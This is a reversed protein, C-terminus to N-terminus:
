LSWRESEQVLYACTAFVDGLAGLTVDRGALVEQVTGPMDLCPVCGAFVLACYVVLSVPLCLTPCRGYLLGACSGRHRSQMTFLAIRGKGQSFLPLPSAVLFSATEVGFSRLLQRRCQHRADHGETGFGAEISVLTGAARCYRSCETLGTGHLTALLKRSTRAVARVVPADRGEFRCRAQNGQRHQLRYGFGTRWSGWVGQYSRRPGPYQGRHDGKGPQRARDRGKGAIGIAGSTWNHWNDPQTRAPPMGPEGLGPCLATRVSPRFCAEQSLGPWSLSLGRRSAGSPEKRSGEEPFIGEPGPGQPACPGPCSGRHERDWSLPSLNLGFVSYKGSCLRNSCITKRKRADYLCSELKDSEM